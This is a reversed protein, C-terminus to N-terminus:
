KKADKVQKTRCVKLFKEVVFYTKAEGIPLVKYYRCGGQKEHYAYIAAYSKADLKPDVEIVMYTKSKAEVLERQGCGYYTSHTGYTYKQLVSDVGANSRLKVIDGKNFKPENKYGQWIARELKRSELGKLFCMVTFLDLETDKLRYGRLVGWKKKSQVTELLDYFKQPNQLWYEARLKFKTYQKGLICSDWWHEIHWASDCRPSIDHYVDKTHDSSYQSDVYEAFDRMSKIEKETLSLFRDYMIKQEKKMDM